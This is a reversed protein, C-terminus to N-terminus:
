LEERQYHTLLQNKLQKRARFLYSKVTGEPLKLIEAIESYSMGELHYLTIIARYRRDLTGIAKHLRVRLDESVAATDPPDDYGSVDDLTITDPTKDDFLPIKKKQLYNVCTNYAITAIWTSLKSEHRFRSLNQYVKMFIDQCLDERDESKDILRFVIHSVLRRHNEILERYADTNGAQIIDILTRSERASMPKM